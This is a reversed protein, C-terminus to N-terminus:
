GAIRYIKRKAMSPIALEERYKAVTRRAITMNCRSLEVAIEQDSLPRTRNEKQIIKKINEKVAAVSAASGNEGANVPHTFFAKLPIMGLPCLIFKDHITRSVTSENLGLQGALSKMSMPKLCYSGVKFYQPQLKVVMEIIRLITTKRNSIDDILASARKIKNKLYKKVDNDDTSEAMRSYLPNIFLRDTENHNSEVCLNGCEDLKIIAEPLVFKECTATNFGSSPIPNLKRIANCCEQAAAVPIDLIHSIEKVKNEALLELYQNIIITAAPNFEPQREAQLSLCERLDSAGVGAPDMGKVIKLARNVAKTNQTGLSAAIEEASDRLYGKEDLSDIIFRCIKATSPGIDLESLQKLLFVRFTPGQSAATLSDFSVNQFSSASNTDYRLPAGGSLWQIERDHEGCIKSNERSMDCQEDRELVPNELIEAEVKKQLEPLSMQLIDLSEKMRASLILRQTQRQNQAQNTQYSLEM